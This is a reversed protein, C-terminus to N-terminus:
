SAHDVLGAVVQKLHERIVSTSEFGFDRGLRRLDGDTVFIYTEVITDWIDPPCNEPPNDFYVYLVKAAERAYGLDYLLLARGLDRLYPQLTDFTAAM